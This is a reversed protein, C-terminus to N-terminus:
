ETVFRSPAAIAALRDLDFEKYLDQAFLDPAAGYEVPADYIHALSLKGNRIVVESFLDPALAAAITAAVQARFGNVEL